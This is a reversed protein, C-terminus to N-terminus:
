KAGRKLWHPLGVTVLGRLFARSAAIARRSHSKDTSSVPQSRGTQRTRVRPYVAAHCV